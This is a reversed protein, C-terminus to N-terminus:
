MATFNDIDRHREVEGGLCRGLPVISPLYMHQVGGTTAADTM